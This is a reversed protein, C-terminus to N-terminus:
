ALIKQHQKLTGLKVIYRESNLSIPELELFGSNKQFIAATKYM